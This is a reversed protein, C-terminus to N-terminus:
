GFARSPNDWMLMKIWKDELGPLFQKYIYSYPRFDGGDEEGVHYWGADQSLLAQGLLGRNSLNVLCEQHWRGSKRDLGDFEVWGGSNAVAEHMRMDKENHAHVWVFKSPKVGRRGLVELQALAAAGNQTHSAITLGTEISTIAAAIVLKLDYEHLPNAGSVGIKIFRPKVGEVGRRAEQIWQMALKEPKEVRAYDPLSRFNEGAGYLGTNTWIELGTEDSLRALLKPDRGLYNPTCELMRRCGLQKIEQLYPKVVKVVANEDYRSRSVQGAGIFDVLIHEHVLISPLPTAARLGSAGALALFQRRNM